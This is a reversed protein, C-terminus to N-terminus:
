VWVNLAFIRATGSFHSLVDYRVDCFFVFFVFLCCFSFRLILQERSLALRHMELTGSSHVSGPLLAAVGDANAQDLLPAFSPSTQVWMPILDRIIGLVEDMSPPVPPYVQTQTFFARIIGTSEGCSSASLSRPVPRFADQRRDFVSASFLPLPSNAASVSTSNFRDCDSSTTVSSVSRPVSRLSFFSAEESLSSSPVGGSAQGLFFPPSVASVPTTAVSSFPPGSPEDNTAVSTMSMNQMLSSSHGLGSHFQVGSSHGLGSHFQVGSSHGLGSHFQVGSSHGLVSHFQVGSSHGLVSHPQVGSGDSLGRRFYNAVLDTCFRHETRYLVHLYQYLTQSHVRPVPQQMEQLGCSQCIAKWTSAYLPVHGRMVVLYCGYLEVAEQSIGGEGQGEGITETGPNASEPAFAFSGEIVGGNYMHQIMGEDPRTHTWAVWWRPRSPNSRKVAGANAKGPPPVAAAAPLSVEPCFAFPRPFM